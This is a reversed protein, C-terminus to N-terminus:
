PNRICPQPDLISPTPNLRLGPRDRRRCGADFRAGEHEEGREGEGQGQIYTYTYLIYLHLIYMYKPYLTYM